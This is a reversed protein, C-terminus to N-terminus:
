PLQVPASVDCTSMDVAQVWQGCVAAPVPSVLRYGGAADASLMTVLRPRALDLQTGACPGVPIVAVGPATAAVLGINGGPTFNAFDASIRGPCTGTITIEPEDAPADFALTVYGVSSMGQFNLAVRSGAATVRRMDFGAIDTSVIRPNALPPAGVDTLTFRIGNFPLAAWSTNVRVTLETSTDSFDGSVYPPIFDCEIGPGVVGSAPIQTFFTTDSLGSADSQDIGFEGSVHQGSFPGAFALSPAAIGLLAVFSSRIM